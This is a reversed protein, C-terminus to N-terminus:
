SRPGCCLHYLRVTHQFLVGIYEGPPMLSRRGTACLIPISVLEAICVYMDMDNDMYMRM